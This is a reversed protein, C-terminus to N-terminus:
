QIVEEALKLIRPSITIGGEPASQLNVSFRLKNEKSLFQIM